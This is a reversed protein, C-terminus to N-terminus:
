KSMSTKGGDLKVYDSQVGCQLCPSSAACVHRTQTSLSITGDLISHLTHLEDRTLSIPGRVEDYTPTIGGDFDLLDIDCEILLAHTATGRLGSTSNSGSIAFGCPTVLINSTTSGNSLDAVQASISFENQRAGSGGAIYNTLDWCGTQWSAIQDHGQMGMVSAQVLAATTDTKKVPVIAGARYPAVNVVMSNTTSPNLSAVELSIKNFRVRVFHKFFDSVYSQGYFSDAPAVPTISVNTDTKTADIMYVSDQAGLTGNGVYVYGALYGIRINRMDRVGVRTRIGTSIAAGLTNQYLSQSSIQLKKSSKNGQREMGPSPKKAKSSLKKGTMVSKNPGPNLEVGVLRSAPPFSTDKVSLGSSGNSSTQMIYIDVM